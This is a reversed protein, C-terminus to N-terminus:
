IQDRIHNFNVAKRGANLAAVYLPGDATLLTFDNTQEILLAADTLGLRVFEPRAAATKGPVYFEEIVEVSHMLAQFVTFIRTRHPEGIQGLLNSTETLINATALLKSAPQLWAQLLAFDSMAYARLNKHHGILGPSTRGVVFLVLLNADVVVAGHSM